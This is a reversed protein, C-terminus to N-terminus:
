ARDAHIWDRNHESEALAAELTEIVQKFLPIDNEDWGDPTRIYIDDQNLTSEIAALKARMTLLTIRIFKTGHITAEAMTPIQPIDNM